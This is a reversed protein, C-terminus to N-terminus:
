RILLKLLWDVIRRRPPYVLRATNLWSPRSFVSKAHSFTLFGERGHYAGMGSNGIGGFPMDHIGIHFITDNVCAGGSQTQELVRNITKRDRDFIYLALPRPRRNIDSIVQELNEYALVPLLPGFIEQQMIKMDDNVEFVLTLPMRRDDLSENRPNMVDVRAGKATADSLMTDLRDKHRANIISTHDPNGDLYPYMRTSHRRIAAAFRDVKDKPCYVYDPALCLQGANMSKGFCIREAAVELDADPGIITPSKGGLELTVPTLNEAAARMVGRGVDTSGTFLLHDFPLSVFHPATEVGGTVAVVEDPTFAEALMLRIAASTHPTIESLKLMVRNGAALAYSLPQVTLFLPVNWPSVIGTVGLPHYYIRASAPAMLFGVHRREPKMWRRLHRKLYHINQIPMLVEAFETELRSRGGFDADIADILKEKHVVVARKLRNLRDIRDKHGPMPQRHFAKRQADLLGLLERHDTETHAPIAEIPRVSMTIVM